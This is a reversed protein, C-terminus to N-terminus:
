SMGAVFIQGNPISNIQGWVSGLKLQKQGTCLLLPPLITNLFQVLTYSSLLSVSSVGCNMDFPLIQKMDAGRFSVVTWKSHEVSTQVPLAPKKILVGSSDCLTMLAPIYFRTFEQLTTYIYLYHPKNYVERSVASSILSMGHDNRYTWRIRRSDNVIASVQAETCIRVTFKGHPM